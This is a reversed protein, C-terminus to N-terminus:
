ERSETTEGAAKEIRAISFKGLENDPHDLLSEGDTRRWYLFILTELIGRLRSRFAKYCRKKRRKNEYMYLDRRVEIMISSVRPEHQYFEHPVITGRFPENVAVDFGAETFLSVAIQQLYDPTHFPDTGICIEPRRLMQDREYPLANTPFSHADIILSSGKAAPRYKLEQPPKVMATFKDHYPHYYRAFLADRESPLLSRRLQRRDHSREYIAGMGVKAMPERADSKFREADVVLRSVPFILNECGELHSFLDDTYHDTMQLVEYELAVDDLVFQDRVDVPILTSSHPINIVTKNQPKM